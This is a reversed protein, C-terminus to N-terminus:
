SVFYSIVYCTFTLSIGIVFVTASFEKGSLFQGFVLVISILNGLEMLRESLRNRFSQKFQINKM